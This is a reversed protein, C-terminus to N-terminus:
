GVRWGQRYRLGLSARGGEYLLGVFLGDLDCLRIRRRSQGRTVYRVCLCGKTDDYPYSWLLDLNITGRGVDITVTKTNKGKKDDTVTLSVETPGQAAFTFEPNQKDSTTTGFKWEWAVVEGDEDTSRDSFQVPEGAM